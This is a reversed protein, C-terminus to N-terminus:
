KSMAAYIARMDQGHLTNLIEAFSVRMMYRGNSMQYEICGDPLIVAAAQKSQAYESRSIAENIMQAKAAKTM